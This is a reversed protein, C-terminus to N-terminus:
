FNKLKERMKIICESEKEQVKVLEVKVPSNEWTVEPYSNKDLIFVQGKDVWFLGDKHPRNEFLNLRNKYADRALYM